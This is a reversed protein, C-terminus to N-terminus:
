EPRRRMARRIPWATAIIALSAALAAGAGLADGIVGVGVLLASGTWVAILLGLASPGDTRASRARGLRRSAADLEDSGCRAPAVPSDPDAGAAVCASRWERAVDALAEAEHKRQELDPRDSM